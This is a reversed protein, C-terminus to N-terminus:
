AEIYDQYIADTTTSNTYNQVCFHGLFLGKSSFYYM